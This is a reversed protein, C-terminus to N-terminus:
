APDPTFVIGHRFAYAFITENADAMIPVNLNPRGLAILVILVSRLPSGPLTQNQRVIEQLLAGLVTRGQGDRAEVNANQRILREMLPLKFENNVNRTAVFHLPTQQNATSITYKNILSIDILADVIGTFEIPSVAWKELAYCFATRGASDKEHPSIKLNLFPVIGVVKHDVAYHFPLYIKCTNFHVDRNLTDLFLHYFHFQDTSQFENPHISAGATYLTVIIEYVNRYNQRISPLELFLCDLATRGDRDTADIGFEKKSLLYKVHDPTCLTPERCLTHLATGGNTTVLRDVTARVSASFLEEKKLVVEKKEEAARQRRPPPTSVPTPSIPQSQIPEERVPPILEQAQELPVSHSQQRVPEERRAPSFFNRIKQILSNFIDKIGQICKAFPNQRSGASSLSSQGDNAHPIGRGAAPLERPLAIGERNDVRM